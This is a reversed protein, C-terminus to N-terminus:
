YDVKRSSGIDMADARIDVRTTGSCAVTGRRGIPSMGSSTLWIQSGAESGVTYSVSSVGTREM